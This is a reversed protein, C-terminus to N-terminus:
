VGLHRAITPPREDLKWPLRVVDIGHRDIMQVLYRDMLLAFAVRKPAPRVGVPWPNEIPVYFITDFKTLLREIASMLAQDARTTERDFAYQTFALIDLPTRDFLQLDVNCTRQLIASVEDLMWRSAQPTQDEVLPHPCRRAVDSLVVTETKVAAHQDIFDRLTTSKGTWNTGSIGARIM